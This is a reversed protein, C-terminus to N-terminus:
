RIFVVNWLTVPEAPKDSYARCYFSCVNGVFVFASYLSIWSCYPDRTAFTDMVTFFSITLLTEVSM